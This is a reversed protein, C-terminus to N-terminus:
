NTGEHTSKLMKSPFLTTYLPSRRLHVLNCDSISHIKPMMDKPQKGVFVVNELRLRTAEDELATRHAGEGVILFVIDDRKKERLTVAAHLMVELAHTM